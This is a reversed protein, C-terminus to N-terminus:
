PQVEKLYKAVKRLRRVSESEHGAIAAATAAANVPRAPAGWVRARIRFGAAQEALAARLNVKDTRKFDVSGLEDRIELLIDAVKDCRAAAEVVSPSLAGTALVYWNPGSGATRGLGPPTGGPDLNMLNVISVQHDQLRRIRAHQYLVKRVAAVKPDIGVM